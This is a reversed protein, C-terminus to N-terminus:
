RLHGLALAERLPETQPPSPLEKRDLAATSSRGRTVEDHIATRVAATRGPEADRDAPLHALSVNAVPDLAQHSLGESPVTPFHRAPEVQHEDGAVFSGGVVESLHDFFQEAGGTAEFALHGGLPAAITLAPSLALCM